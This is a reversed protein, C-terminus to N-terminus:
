IFAKLMPMVCSEIHRFSETCAFVDATETWLTGMFQEVSKPTLFFHLGQNKWFLTSTFSNEVVFTYFKWNQPWLARMAIDSRKALDSFIFPLLQGFRRNSINFSFGRIVLKQSISDHPLDSFGSKAWSGSHYDLNTLFIDPAHRPTLTWM